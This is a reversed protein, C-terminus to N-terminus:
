KNSEKELKAVAIAAEIKEYAEGVAIHSNTGFTLARIAECAELLQPAAAILRANAEAQERTEDPIVQGFDYGLYKCNAIKTECGKHWSWVCTPDNKGVEWSGPTHKM